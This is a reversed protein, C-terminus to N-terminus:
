EDAPWVDPEFQLVGDTSYQDLCSHDGPSDCALFRATDYPEWSSARGTDMWHEAHRYVERGYRNRVYRGPNRPAPYWRGDLQVRTPPLGHRRLKETDLWHQGWLELMWDDQYVKAVGGATRNDHCCYPESEPVWRLGRLGWQGAQLALLAMDGSSFAIDADREWPLVSGFKVAGLLTGEQLECLAGTRECDDLVAHILRLLQRRCCPSLLRGPRVECPLRLQQCSFQLRGGAPPEVLTLHLRRAEQLWDTAAAPRQRRVHFMVDPCVLVPQQGAGRVDLLWRELPLRSSDALPWRRLLEARALLPGAAHDCRVCEHRSRWYGARYRLSYNALRVQFCGLSWRGDPGRAAGAVAAARQREAERLLRELDADSDLRELEAGLLVYDTAAGALLRNLLAALPPPRGASAAVPVETVDRFPALRGGLGDVVAVRAPVGPLQENLGALVRRVRAVDAPEAVVLLVTLLRGYDRRLPCAASRWGDYFFPYGVTSNVYHEPCVRRVAGRDAATPRALSLHLRRGARSWRRPENDPRCAPMLLLHCCVGAALLLLLARAAGLARLRRGSRAARLKEATVPTREATGKHIQKRPTSFDEKLRQALSMPGLRPSPCRDQAAPESMPGLRPSPCRDTAAPESMQGYRRARVDTRLPPSPCRDDAAPESM